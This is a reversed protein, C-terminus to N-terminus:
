SLDVENGDYEAGLSAALEEMQEDWAMWDQSVMRSALLLWQNSGPEASPRVVQTYGEAEIRAVANRAADESDFYLYFDM